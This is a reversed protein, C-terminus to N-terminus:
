DSISYSLSTVGEGGGEGHQQEGQEQPEAPEAPQEPIGQIFHDFCLSLSILQLHIGALNGM